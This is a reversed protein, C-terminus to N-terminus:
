ITQRQIVFYYIAVGIGGLVIIVGLAGLLAVLWGPMGGGDGGDGANAATGGELPLAGFERSQISGAGVDVTWSQETTPQFADGTWSVIYTGPTLDAFCYPESIADTTYRGVVQTGDSLTFTIGAVKAEDAERLGNSNGDDYSMVCVTGNGASDSSLPEAEEAQPQAEEAPAEEAQAEEAPEAAAPQEAPQEGGERIVLQVGLVAFDNTLGNLRKIEEVTTGYQWAIQSLTDGVQVTHVLRGTADPTALTYPGSPQAAAAAQTPAETAAPTSVKFMKGDDWYAFNWAACTDPRNRVWVTVQNGAAKATVSFQQWSDMAAKADSWVISSAHPSVGGQPDIGIMMQSTSTSASDPGAGSKAYGYMTFEYWQGSEVKVAQWLGANHSAYSTYYRVFTPGTKASGDTTVEFTPTSNYCENVVPQDWWISWGTPAELKADGDHLYSGGEFSPHTLLQDQALVPTALIALAIFILGLTVVRSLRATTM